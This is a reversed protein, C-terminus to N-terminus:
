TGACDDSFALAKRIAREKDPCWGLYHSLQRVLLNLEDARVRIVVLLALFGVLRLELYQISAIPLRNSPRTANTNPAPDTPAPQPFPLAAATAKARSPVFTMATSRLFSAASSVRSMM